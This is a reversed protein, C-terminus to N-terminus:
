CQCPERGCVLCRGSVPTPQIWPACAAHLLRRAEDYVVTEGRRIRFGCGGPCLDTSEYLARFSM